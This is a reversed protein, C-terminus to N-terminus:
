SKKKKRFFLMMSAEVQNASYTGIIKYFLIYKILQFFFFVLWGVLCFLLLKVSQCLSIRSIRLTPLPFFPCWNTFTIVIEDLECLHFDELGEWLKRVCNYRGHIM